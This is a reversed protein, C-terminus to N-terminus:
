CVSRLMIAEVLVVGCNFEVALTGSAQMALIEGIEGGIVLDVPRLTPMPEATKLYTTKEVLSVKDGLTFHMQIGRTLTGVAFTM